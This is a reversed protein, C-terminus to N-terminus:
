IGLNNSYGSHKKGIWKGIFEVVLNIAWYMLGAVLFIEFPAYTFGIATNAMMTLETVTIVSLVSSEKISTVVQNILPPIVIPVIQPFIIRRLILLYPMRLAEAAESQGKPIADIGMKIVIFYLASAYLSLAVIGAQLAPVRIGFIAPVAYYMLYVQIMFPINRFIKVYITTIAKLLRNGSLSMLTILISLVLALPISCAVILLTYKLGNLLYPIAIGIAFLRFHM